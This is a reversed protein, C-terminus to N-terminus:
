YTEIIKYIKEFIISKVREIEQGWLADGPQYPVINRIIRYAKETGYGLKIGPIDRIRLDLARAGVYLEIALVHATNTVISRTHRAAVM